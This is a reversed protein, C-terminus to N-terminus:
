RAYWAAIRARDVGAAWAAAGLWHKFMTRLPGGAQYRRASTVADLPVRAVRGRAKMAKVLDLDEM